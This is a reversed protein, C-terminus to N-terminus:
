ESLPGAPGPHADEGGSTNLMALWSPPLPTDAIMSGVQSLHCLTYCFVKGHKSNDCLFCRHRARSIMVKRLSTEEESYDTIEGADSIGASSFLMLDAHFGRVMEEAFRGVYAMSSETLLGGTCYVKIDMEGLKVAASSSNTVVTLSRKGALFPVVGLVTSSGDLFLVDGDKVLAAARRAIAQKEERNTQQRMPLPISQNLYELTTAGGYARKVLNQGELEALDRRITSESAHMLKALRHVSLFGSEKNQKLLSLLEQQREAKYM